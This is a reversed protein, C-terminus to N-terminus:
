LPDDPGASRRGDQGDEASSNRNWGSTHVRHSKPRIGRKIYRASAGDRQRRAPDALEPSTGSVANTDASVRSQGGLPGGQWTRWRRGPHAASRDRSVHTCVSDGVRGGDLQGGAGSYLHGAGRHVPAPIRGFIAALLRGSSGTQVIQRLRASGACHRSAEDFPHRLELGLSGPLRGHWPAALPPRGAGSGLLACGPRRHDPLSRSLRIAYRRRHKLKPSECM